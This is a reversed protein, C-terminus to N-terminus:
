PIEGLAYIQGHHNLCDACLKPDLIAQWYKWRSSQTTEPFFTDLLGKFTATKAFSEGLIYGRTKKVYM